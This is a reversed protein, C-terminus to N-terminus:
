KLRVLKGLSSEKIQANPAYKEILSEVIIRQADTASPSLTIELNQFASDNLHLYYDDFSLPMNSVCRQKVIDHINPDGGKSYLILLFFM